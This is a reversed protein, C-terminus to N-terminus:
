MFIVKCRLFYTSKTFYINYLPPCATCNEALSCFSFLPALIFREM